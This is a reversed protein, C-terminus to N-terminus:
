TLHKSIADVIAGKPKAGVIQEKVHGDKFLLLTPIGRIQFRASLGNHADVDLKGVKLKGEYEAAIEYNWNSYEDDPEVGDGLDYALGLHYLAGPHDKESAREIWEIGEDYDQSVGHGKLYMLGLNFQADPNDQDAALQYWQIAEEFDQAVEDKTNDGLWLDLQKEAIRDKDSIKRWEFESQQGRDLIGGQHYILGLNFQADTNGQEAALRFWNSM